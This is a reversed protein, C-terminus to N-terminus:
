EGSDSNANGPSGFYDLGLAKRCQEMAVPYMICAPITRFLAANTGRWFGSVGSERYLEVALQLLRQSNLRIGGDLNYARARIADAPMYRSPLFSFSPLFSPLFFPSSPLFIPRFSSYWPLFLPLSLLFFHLFSPLHMFSPFSCFSPYSRVHLYWGRGNWLRHM